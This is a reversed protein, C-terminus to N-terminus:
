NSESMENSTIEPSAIGIKNTQKKNRRSKKATLLFKRKSPQPREHVHLKRTHKNENETFQALLQSLHAFYKNLFRSM